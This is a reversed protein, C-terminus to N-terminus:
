RRCYGRGISSIGTPSLGPLRSRRRFASSGPVAAIATLLITAVEYLQSRVFAASTWRSPFPQRRFRRLPGTENAVSELNTEHQDKM